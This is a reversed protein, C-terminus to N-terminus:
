TADKCVFTGRLNAAPSDDTIELKRTIFNYTGYVRKEGHATAPCTPAEFFLQDKMAFDSSGLRCVDIDTGIFLNSGSFSIKGNEIRIAIESHDAIIGSAGSNKDLNDVNGECLLLKKPYGSSCAAVTLVSFVLSVFYAFMRSVTM